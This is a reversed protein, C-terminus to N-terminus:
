GRHPLFRLALRLIALSLILGISDGVFIVSGETTPLGYALRQSILNIVSATLKRIESLGSLSKM